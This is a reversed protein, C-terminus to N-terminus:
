GCLFGAFSQENICVFEVDKRLMRKNRHRPARMRRSTHLKNTKSKSAWAWVLLVPEPEVAASAVGGATLKFVVIGVPYRADMSEVPRNVIIQRKDLEGKSGGFSYANSAITNLALANALEREGSKDSRSGITKASTV